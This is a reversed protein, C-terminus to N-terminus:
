KQIDVTFIDPKGDAQKPMVAPTAFLVYAPPTCRGPAVQMTGQMGNQGYTIVQRLNLVGEVNPLVIQILASGLVLGVGLADSGGILGTAKAQIVSTSAARITGFIIQKKSAGQSNGVLSMADQRSFAQLGHRRFEAIVDGEGFTIPETGKSCGIVEGFQFEKPIPGYNQKVLSAPPWNVSIEVPVSQAAMIASLGASLLIIRATKM